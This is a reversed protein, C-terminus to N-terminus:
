KRRIFRNFAQKANFNNAKVILNNKSKDIQSYYEDMNKEAMKLAGYARVRDELFGPAGILGFSQLKTNYVVYFAPVVGEGLPSIEENKNESSQENPKSDSKESSSRGVSEEAPSQDSAM